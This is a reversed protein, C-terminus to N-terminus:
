NYFHKGIVSVRRDCYTDLQDYMGCFMGSKSIKGDWVLTKIIGKDDLYPLYKDIPKDITHKEIHKLISNIGRKTFLVSHAGNAGKIKNRKIFKNTGKCPIKCYRTYSLFYVNNSNIGKKFEKIIKKYDRFFNEKDLLPFADDELFLLFPYNHEKAYKLCEYFSGALGWSGGWM